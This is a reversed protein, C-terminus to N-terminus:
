KVQLVKLIEPLIIKECGASAPHLGDPVYREFTEPDEKLLKHWNPYNDILILGRVSATDRYIQYYKELNPRAAGNKGISPNMTMLIIECASNSKKINDIMKNLNDRCLEPTKKEPLYADNVAFEIFVCDPKERLVREELNRVAWSSTTAGKGKNVITALSGYRAQLIKTLQEPWACDKTLSTGYTVIKQPIGKKLNRITESRQPLVEGANDISINRKLEREQYKKLIDKSSFLKKYVNVEYVIGAFHWCNSVNNFGIGTRATNNKYGEATKRSILIGDLYFIIKDNEKDYAILVDYIKGPVIRAITINSYGKSEKAWTVGLESRSLGLSWGSTNSKGAAILNGLITMAAKDTTNAAFIIETTWSGQLELPKALILGGSDGDFELGEPKHWHYEGQATGNNESHSSDRVMPGSGDEFNLCLIRSDDEGGSEGVARLSNGFLLFACAIVLSSIKM